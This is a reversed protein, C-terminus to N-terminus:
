CVVLMESLRQSESECELAESITFMGFDESILRLSQIKAQNDPDVASATINNRKRHVM